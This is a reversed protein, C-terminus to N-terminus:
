HMLVCVLMVILRKTQYIEGMTSYIIADEVQNDIAERFVALAKDATLKDLKLANGLLLYPKPSLADIAILHQYTQKAKDFHKLNLQKELQSYLKESETQYLEDYYTYGTAALMTTGLLFSLLGIQLASRNQRKRQAEIIPKVLTDHSLEYHVSGLRPETRLLRTKVLVNLSDQSLKFDKEIEEQALSLRNNKSSILGKECLKRVKKRTSFVKFSNVQREYFLKLVRRMGEKGGLDEAEIIRKGTKTEVLEELHGCL